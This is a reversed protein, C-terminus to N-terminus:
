EDGQLKMAKLSEHIKESIAPWARANVITTIEVQASCEDSVKIKCVPLDDDYIEIATVYAELSM